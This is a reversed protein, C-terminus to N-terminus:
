IGLLGSEIVEAVTVPFRTDIMSKQPLYGIPLRPVETGNEYYTVRGRTPPLLKLIIRLLTTKGGGNPGTIAIFDGRRVTLNCDRLTPTHGWQMTVDELTIVTDNTM